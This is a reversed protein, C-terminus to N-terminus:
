QLCWCEASSRPPSGHHHSRPRGSLIDGVLHSGHLPEDFTEALPEAFLEAMFEVIAEAISEGLPDAIFEMQESRTRQDAQASLWWCVAGYTENFKEIRGATHQQGRGLAQRSPM